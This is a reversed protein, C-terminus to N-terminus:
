NDPQFLRNFNIYKFIRNSSERYIPLKFLIIVAPLLLLASVTTAVMTSAVLWGLYFVPVFESLLLVSFGLVLAVSTYVIAMGAERYSLNISEEISYGSLLNHRITKLMHITDDVGIGIAIAALLAKPIDLPINLYGMIGYVLIISTSIPILALLGVQWNKFLFFVVLAVILLTLIVSLIQGKVILDSLVTFNITEGVFHWRYKGAVPHNKLYERVKEQGRANIATSFLKDKLSGVRILINAYRYGPDVFQEFSDVRGDSNRDEGSYLELYDEITSRRDPISFYEPKEANMAKHMRKIIDGFSLTHLFLYNERNEKKVIWKRIEETLKLFEPDKVGNKKGSDIVLNVLASGNFLQGVRIDSKYIYSDKKFQFLPSTEVRIKTIGYSFVAILLFATLVVPKSHNLSLRSFVELIKQVSRNKGKEEKKKFPVLKMLVLASPILASSIMMALLTGFAAFIGFDRLSSVQNVTLTLFGVFTTLAALMVTVSIHSMSNIIGAKRGEREIEDRDLIYQNFIHISYSSGVAILLPPLMNVVLTIPIKFLGMIGLTWFTGLLVSVTPLFVGRVTRFNLFFTLVVVLIVLPMFRLLDKKMFDRIYKQIVPLGIRTLKVPSRNYKEILETFYNFIEIHDKRPRLVMSMALARIRGKDDMSYLGNRFAPNNLIKKRYEAFDKETEPLKRMGNEDEPIFSVPKLEGQSGLIDEGSVPNIFSKVIEMSKYLYVTEWGEVIDMYQKETLRVDDPLNMLRKYRLITNLQPLAGAELKKKLHGLTVPTYHDPNFANRERLAKVYFKGTVPRSLDWIDEPERVSRKKKPGAKKKDGFIEKDLEAELEDKSVTENKKVPPTKEPVTKRENGFIEKDLESELEDKSATKNKSVPLPKEPASKKVRATKEVISINGTELLLSLRREEVERNFDKFEEIEDVMSNIVAFVEPSFLKSGGTTEIATMMFTRSDLFVEKAREGLKYAMDEKPMLAETSGDFYLRKFGFGSLATVGLIIIFVIFPHRVNFEIWRRM